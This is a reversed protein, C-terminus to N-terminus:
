EEFKKLEAEKENIVKLAEEIKERLEKTDYYYIKIRRGAKGFEFSNPRKNEIVVEKTNEDLGKLYGEEFSNEDRM